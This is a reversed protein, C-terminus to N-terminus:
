CVWGRCAEGCGWAAVGGHAVDLFFAVAVEGGAVDRVGDEEFGGDGGDAGGGEGAWGWVGFAEAGDACGDVDGGRGEEDGEVALM